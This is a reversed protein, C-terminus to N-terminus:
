FDITAHDEYSGLNKGAKWDENFFSNSLVKIVKGDQFIVAFWSYRVRYFVLDLKTSAGYLRVEENNKLKFIKQPKNYLKDVEDISM